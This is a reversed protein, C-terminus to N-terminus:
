QCQKKLAVEFEDRSNYRSKDIFPIEEGAVKKYKSYYSSIKADIEHWSFAVGKVIIISYGSVQVEEVGELKLLDDIITGIEEDNFKKRFGYTTMNQGCEDNREAVILNSCQTGAGYVPVSFFFCAVLIVTHLAKM